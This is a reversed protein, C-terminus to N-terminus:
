SSTPGALISTVDRACPPLGHGKPFGGFDLKLVGVKFMSHIFSFLQADEIKEKMESILKSLIEYDAEKNMCITFWWNPNPIEKCVYRLASLHGRGSRCGHSIKSFHPRYVVELVVRIAEQIM